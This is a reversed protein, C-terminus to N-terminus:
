REIFEVTGAVIEHEDIGALLIGAKRRFGDGMDAMAAEAHTGVTQHRKMVTGITEIELHTVVIGIAM